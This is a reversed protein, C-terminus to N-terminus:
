SASGAEPGRHAGPAPEAGTGAAADIEADAPTGDGLGSATSPWPSLVARVYGSLYGSAIPAPHLRRRDHLEVPVPEAPPMAAVLAAVWDRPRAGAAMAQQLRLRTRAGDAGATAAGLTRYQERQHVLTHELSQLGERGQAIGRRLRAGREGVQELLRLALVHDAYRFSDLLVLLNRRWLADAAARARALALRLLRRRRAAFVLTGVGLLAGPLLTWALDPLWLEPRSLYADAGGLVLLPARVALVPVLAVLTALGASVVLHRLRPLQAARDRAHQLATDFADDEAFRPRGADPTRGPGTRALDDGLGALIDDAQTRIDAALDTCEAETREIWMMAGAGFGIDAPTLRELAGLLRQEREAYQRTRQAHETALQGRRAQLAVDLAELVRRGVEALRPALDSRFFWPLRVRFLARAANSLGDGIERALASRLHRAEGIARAFAQEADTDGAGVAAAGKLLPGIEDLLAPIQRGWDRACWDLPPERPAATLDLSLLAGVRYDRLEPGLVPHLLWDILLREAHLRALHTAGGLRVTLLPAPSVGAVRAPDADPPLTLVLERGQAAARAAVSDLWAPAIADAGAAGPLHFLLVPPPALPSPDPLDDLADPLDAEGVRRPWDPWPGRPERGHPALDWVRIDDRPLLDLCHAQVLGAFPRARDLNCWLVSRM